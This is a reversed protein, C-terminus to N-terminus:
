KFYVIVILLNIILRCVGIIIVEMYHMDEIGDWGIFWHKYNILLRVVSTTKSGFPLLGGESKYGLIRVVRLRNRETHTRQLGFLGFIYSLKTRYFM